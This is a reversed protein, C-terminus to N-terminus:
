MSSSFLSSIKFVNRGEQKIVTQGDVRYPIENQYVIEGDYLFELKGRPAYCVMRLHKQKREYDAFPDDKPPEKSRQTVSALAKKASERAQLTPSDEGSQGAAKQWWYVAKQESRPIGEGNRYFTGVLFQAAAWGQQASNLMLEFAKSHDQPLGGDGKFYLISLTYQAKMNGKAASRRFYDIAVNMDKGVGWGNVYLVGILNECQDDTKHPGRNCWGLAAKYDGKDFASKAAQYSALGCEAYALFVIGFILCARNVPM